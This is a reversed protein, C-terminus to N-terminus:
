ILGTTRELIVGTVIHTFHFIKDRNIKMDKSFFIEFTSGTHMLCLIRITSDLDPLTFFVLIELVVQIYVPALFEWNTDLELIM